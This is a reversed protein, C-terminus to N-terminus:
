ESAPSEWARETGGATAAFPSFRPYATGRLPAAARKVGAEDGEERRQLLGSESALAKGHEQWAAQPPQESPLSLFSAAVADRGAEERKWGASARLASPHSRELLM